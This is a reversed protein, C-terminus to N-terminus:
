KSLNANGGAQRRTKAQRNRRSTPRLARVEAVGEGGPFTIVDQILDAAGTLTERTLHAYRQTTRAYLHGLLDQVLYLSVGRNVLLSAFSYRLDHLRVDTLGARRRIRGWPFFLSASPQGHGAVSLYLSQRCPAADGDVARDGIPEARHHPRPRIEIEAGVADQEELRCLGVQDWKTFTIENRRAGSLLLLMISRAATQNEDVHISHVLAEAEEESPFRNRQVDPGASLGAAPNDSVGPV